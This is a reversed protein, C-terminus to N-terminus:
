TKDNPRPKRTDIVKMDRVRAERAPFKKTRILRAMEVMRTFSIFSAAAQAELTGELLPDQLEQWCSIPKDSVNGSTSFSRRVPHLVNKCPSHM